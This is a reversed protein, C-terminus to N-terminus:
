RTTSIGFRTMQGSTRASITSHFLTVSRAILDDRVTLKGPIGNIWVPGHARHHWERGQEHFKREALGIGTCLTCIADAQGDTIESVNDFAMVLSNPTGHQFDRADALHREDIKHPDVLSASGEDGNDEGIWCARM